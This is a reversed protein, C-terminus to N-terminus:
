GQAFEGEGFQADSIERLRAAMNQLNGVHEWTIDDPAVGFHDESLEELRALIRDIEAKYGIFADVPDRTEKTM